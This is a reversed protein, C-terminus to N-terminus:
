NLFHANLQNIKCLYLLPKFFLLYNVRKTLVSILREAEQTVLVSGECEM